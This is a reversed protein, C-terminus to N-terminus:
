CAGASARVHALPERREAGVRDAALRLLEGVVDPRLDRPPRLHDLFRSRLRLSNYRRSSGEAICNHAARVRPHRLGHLPRRPLDARARGRGRREDAARGQGRAPEPIFWGVEQPAAPDAVDVIRLGGAFWACYVLTDGGKMHEQFQHAGFRGPTARSWPSDLESVEFIALPQINAPDTIDFAWLAPTRGAAASRWRRPATPTTKRTSRSRSRAPRRDAEAAGHLHAFARPVAPSLQLRRDDEAQPHRVRRRHARRRALLRRVAPRRRAARSAASAPPGAVDAERRGRPATGADVLKSVEEPKAPNRIDYIVLINGIYGEADRDLHLRLERGHRLPARRHRPNAPVHDAEAERPGVVDYIKFGGNSTRAEEGAGRGRPHRVRQVGLKEALEAHTPTAGSRRRATAHAAEAARGGQARDRDHQARQQRDHHRRDRAGQPQALEPDDLTIQSVLKPKKPDSIDLISTGLGEKNTIHGVYAYKGDVYVQGAGPLDDTRPDDRVGRRRVGASRSRVTYCRGHGSCLEGDVTLRIM